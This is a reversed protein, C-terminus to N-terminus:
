RWDPGQWGRRGDHRWHHPRAVFVPAFMPRHPAPRYVVVPRPRVVVPAPAYVIPAAPRWGPAYYGPGANAHAYYGGSTAAISAGTVAGLVGGVIAGDHGNVSHGIAAGFAAGFLAGLGPDGASAETPLLTGTTAIAIAALALPKELM